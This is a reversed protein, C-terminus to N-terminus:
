HSKEVRQVNFHLKVSMVEHKVSGAQYILGLRMPQASLHLDTRMHGATKGQLVERRCVGDLFQQTM